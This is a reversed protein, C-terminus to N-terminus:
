NWRGRAGGVSYRGAGILAIVLASFLYLAQLELGYGGTRDISLLEGAHVLAVAVVMNIVVVFAAVRTWVGVIILLPALVEGIYVLYGLAAPMGVQTLAASISGIGGELKAVGHFLLLLGVTLRLVLRGADTANGASTSAASGAM